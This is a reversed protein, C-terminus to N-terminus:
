DLNRVPFQMLIRHGYSHETIEDSHDELLGRYRSEVLFKALYLPLYRGPEQPRKSRGSSGRRGTLKRPDRLSPFPTSLAQTFPAFLGERLTKPLRHSNDEFTIKTETENRECNIKIAPKVNLPVTATRHIFWQFLRSIALELGSQQAMVTCDETVQPPEIVADEGLPTVYKWAAAIVKKISVPEIQDDDVQDLYQGTDSLDNALDQLQEDNKTSVGYSIEQGVTLCLKATSARIAHIEKWQAWINGISALVTPRFYQALIRCLAEREELQHDTGVDNKLLGISLQMDKDSSLPLFVAHDLDKCLNATKADLPATLKGVDLVQPETLNGQAFEQL